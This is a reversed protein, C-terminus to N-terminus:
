ILGDFQKVRTGKEVRGVADHHTSQQVDIGYIVYKM